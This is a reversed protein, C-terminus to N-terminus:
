LQWKNNGNDRGSPPSKATTEAGPAGALKGELEKRTKYGKFGAQIKTAAKQAEEEPPGGTEAQNFRNIGNIAMYNDVSELLWTLFFITAFFKKM